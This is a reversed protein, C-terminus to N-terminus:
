FRTNASCCLSVVLILVLMNEEKTRGMLIAPSAFCVIVIVTIYVVNLLCEEGPTERWEASPTSTSNVTKYIFHVFSINATPNSLAESTTVECAVSGYPSDNTHKIRHNTSNWIKRQTECSNWMASCPKYVICRCHIHQTCYKYTM